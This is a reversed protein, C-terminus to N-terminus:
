VVRTDLTARVTFPQTGVPKQTLICMGETSMDVGIAPQWSLNNLTYTARYPRKVREIKRRNEGRAAVWGMFDVLMACGGTRRTQAEGLGGYTGGLRCPAGDCQRYVTSRRTSSRCLSSTPSRQATLSLRRSARM